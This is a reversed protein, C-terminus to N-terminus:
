KGARPETRRNRIRLNNWWISVFLQAADRHSRVLSQELPRGRGIWGPHRTISVAGPLRRDARFTTPGPTELGLLSLMQMRHRLHSVRLDHPRYRLKRARSRLAWDLLILRPILSDRSTHIISLVTSTVIRTLPDFTHLM